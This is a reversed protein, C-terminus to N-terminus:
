STFVNEFMSAVTPDPAAQCTAVVGEITKTMDARMKEIKAADLLGRKILDEETLKIPDRKEWKELEGEPRYLAKDARSHGAFRYTKAEILTPGGGSRAREVAEKIGKRVAHVDMGDVAYHPMKYSEARMHLDELPTTKDIRSYEGYVNNDCIFIAPLKWIAALNLGEHFAGINTAGDGFVAVGVSDKGLLQYALGAGAAIPIGGGVIASTPLLGLNMDALHMSGGVGGCCGITKGMIEGLVSEPTLGLALAVGHGRYTAMVTDTTRLEAALAIDLAEQGLCLHTTGRILGAAFLGNIQNEFERIELMREYGAVEDTQVAKRRELQISM